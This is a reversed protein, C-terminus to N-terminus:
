PRMRDPTLSAAHGGGIAEVVRGALGLQDLEDFGGVAFSAV